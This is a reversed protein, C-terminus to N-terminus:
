MPVWPITCPMAICARKKWWRPAAFRSRVTQPSLPLAPTLAALPVNAPMSGSSISCARSITSQPVFVITM